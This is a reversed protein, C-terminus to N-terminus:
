EEIMENTTRTSRLYPLEEDDKGMVEIDKRALVIDNDNSPLLDLPVKYLKSNPAKGLCVGFFRFKNSPYLEIIQFAESDVDILYKVARKL